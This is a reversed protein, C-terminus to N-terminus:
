LNVVKVYQSFNHSNKKYFNKTSSDSSILQDGKIKYM